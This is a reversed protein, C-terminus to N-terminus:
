SLWVSGVIPLIPLVADYAGIDEIDTMIDASLVPNIDYRTIWFGIGYQRCIYFAAM